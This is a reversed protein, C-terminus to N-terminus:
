LCELTVLLPFPLASCVRILIERELANARELKAEISSHVGFLCADGTEEQSLAHYNCCIMSRIVIREM